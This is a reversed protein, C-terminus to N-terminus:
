NKALAQKIVKKQLYRCKRQYVIEQFGSERKYM